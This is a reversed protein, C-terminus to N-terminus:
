RVAGTAATPTESTTMVGAAAEPTPHWAARSRRRAASNPLMNFVALLVNIALANLLNRLLWVQTGVPFHHGLRLAAASLAALALNKVPGAIAVLVMDRRPHRLAHFNVPM